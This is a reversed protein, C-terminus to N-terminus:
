KVKDFHGQELYITDLNNSLRKVIDVTDDTSGDDVLVIEFKTKVLTKLFNDLHKEENYVPVVIIIKM